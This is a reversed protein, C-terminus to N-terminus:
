SPMAILVPKVFNAATAATMNDSPLPQITTPPPPPPPVTCAYWRQLLASSQAAPRLQRAAFVADVPPVPLKQVFVHAPPPEAHGADGM